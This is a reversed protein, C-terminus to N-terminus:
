LFIKNQVINRSNILHVTLLIFSIYKLRCSSKLQIVSERVFMASKTNCQLTNHRTSCEYCYYKHRDPIFLNDSKQMAINQPLSVSRKRGRDANYISQTNHHQPANNARCTINLINITGREVTRM